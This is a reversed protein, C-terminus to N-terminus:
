RAGYGNGSREGSHIAPPDGSQNEDSFFVRDGLAPTAITGAATRLDFAVDAPKQILPFDFDGRYLEVPGPAILRVQVALDNGITVLDNAVLNEAVTQDIEFELIRQTEDPDWGQALVRSSGDGVWLQVINATPFAGPASQVNIHYTGQINAVSGGYFDGQTLSVVLRDRLGHAVTRVAALAPGGTILNGVRVWGAASTLYLGIDGSEASDITTSTDSIDRWSLSGGAAVGRTFFHIDGIGSNAVAPLADGVTIKRAALGKAGRKKGCSPIPRRRARLLRFQRSDDREFGSSTGVETKAIVAWVGDAVKQVRVALGAALALSAAGDITDSGDPAVTVEASSSNVIM